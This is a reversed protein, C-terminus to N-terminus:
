QCASHVDGPAGPRPRPRRGALDHVELVVERREGLRTVLDGGAAGEWLAAAHEVVIEGAGVLGAGDTLICPPARQGLGRQPVAELLHDTGKFAPGSDSARESTQM